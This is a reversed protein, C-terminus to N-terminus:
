MTFLLHGSFTNHHNQNDYIKANACLHLFVQDGAELVLSAGNSSTGYHSPQLEYAAFIQEGNKFLVACTAHSADGVAGVYWEFHYAGRVPATFIGTHPSYANGINTVVHKFVLLTETSFPGNTQEGETLLAASFVVQKVQLQQKLKYVESKHRELEELKSEHEKLQQKLKDNETKQSELEKLKAQNEQKLIRIEVKQEALSATLQRLVAHIDQLCPQQAAIQQGFLEKEAETQDASVSCVLLLLLFFMSIEMKEGSLQQMALSKM